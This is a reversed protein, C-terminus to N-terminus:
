VQAETLLEYVRADLAKAVRGLTSLAPNRRGRELGSVYTRDVGAVAAFAEQSLGLATRRSQIV